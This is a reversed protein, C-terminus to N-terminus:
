VQKVRQLQGQGADVGGAESYTPRAASLDSGGSQGGFDQETAIGAAIAKQKIAEKSTGVPVGQILRGNPLEVDMTQSGDQTAPRAISLDLKGPQKQEAKQIAAKMTGQSTGDPFELIGLTPHEVEIM